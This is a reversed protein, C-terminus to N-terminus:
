KEKFFFTLVRSLYKKKIKFVTDWGMKDKSFINNIFDYNKSNNLKFWQDIM